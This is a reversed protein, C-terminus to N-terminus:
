GIRDAKAKNIGSRTRRLSFSVCGLDVFGGTPRGWEDWERTSEVDSGQASPKGNEAARSPYMEKWLLMLFAAIAV